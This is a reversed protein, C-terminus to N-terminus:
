KEDINEWDKVTDLSWQVSLNMNTWLLVRKVTSLWLLAIWCVFADSVSRLEKRTQRPINKCFDITQCNKWLRSHLLLFKLEWVNRENNGRRM